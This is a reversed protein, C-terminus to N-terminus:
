GSSELKNMEVDPESPNATLRTSLSRRSLSQLFGGTEFRSQM